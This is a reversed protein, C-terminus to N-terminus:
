STSKRAIAGDVLRTLSLPSPLQKSRTPSVPDVGTRNKLNAACPIATAFVHLPGHRQRSGVHWMIETFDHRLPVTISRRYEEGAVNISIPQVEDFAAADLNASAAGTIQLIGNAGDKGIIDLTLACYQTTDFGAGQDTSERGRWSADDAYIVRVALSKDSPDSHPARPFRQPPPIDGLCVDSAGGQAILALM